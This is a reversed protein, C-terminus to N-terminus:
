ADIALELDLCMGSTTGNGIGFFTLNSQPDVKPMGIAMWDAEQWYNSGNAGLGTLPIMGLPQVLDFAYNGASTGVVNVTFSDVSRAGTDGSALPILIGGDTSMTGWSSGVSTTSSVSAGSQNTYNVTITPSSGGGASSIAEFLIWVGDGGSPARAPLAPTGVTQLTGINAVFGSVGCFRDILWGCTANGFGGGSEWAQRSRIVRFYQGSGPDAPLTIAGASSRDYSTGPSIAPDAQVGPIDSSRAASLGVQMISTNGQVALSGGATRARLPMANVVSALTTLSV